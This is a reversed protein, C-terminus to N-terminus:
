RPLSCPAPGIYPLTAADLSSHYALTTTAWLTTLFTVYGSAHFLRSFLVAQPLVKEANRLKLVACVCHYLSVSSPRFACYVRSGM